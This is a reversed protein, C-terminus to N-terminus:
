FFLAKEGMTLSRLGLVEPQWSRLVEEVQPWNEPDDHYSEIRVEVKEGLDRNLAAAIYILGLPYELMDTSTDLSVRNIDMLLIRVARM